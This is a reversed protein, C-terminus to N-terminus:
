VHARGIKSTLDYFLFDKQSNQYSFRSFFSEKSNIAEFIPSFNQLDEFLAFSDFNFKHSFKLLDKFDPFWRKFTRNRYLVEMKDNTVIVADNFKNFFDFKNM